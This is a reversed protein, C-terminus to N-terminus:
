GNRAFRLNQLAPFLFLFTRPVPDVPATLTVIQLIMGTDVRGTMLEWIADHQEQTRRPCHRDCTGVLQNSADFYTHIVETAKSAPENEPRVPRRAKGILTGDPLEFDM